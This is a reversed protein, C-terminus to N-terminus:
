PTTQLRPLRSYRPRGLHRVVLSRSRRDAGAQMSSVVYAIIGIERTSEPRKKLYFARRRERQNSRSNPRYDSYERVAGGIDGQAHPALWSRCRRGFLDFRRRDRHM